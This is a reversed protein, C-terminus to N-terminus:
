YFYLIGEQDFNFPETTLEIEINETVAETESIETTTPSIENTTVPIETTTVSIDPTTTAAVSATVESEETETNSDEQKEVQPEVDSSKIEETQPKSNVILSVKEAQNADNTEFYDGGYSCEYIGSDSENLDNIYIKGEKVESSDNLEKKLIILYCKNNNLTFFSFYETLKKGALKM